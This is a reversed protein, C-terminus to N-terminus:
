HVGSLVLKFQVSGSLTLSFVIICPTFYKPYSTYSLKLTKGYKYAINLNFLNLESFIPVSTGIKLPKKQTLSKIYPWKIFM